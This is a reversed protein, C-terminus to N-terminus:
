PDMRGSPRELHFRWATGVERDAVEGDHWSAARRSCACRRGPSPSPGRRSAACTPRLRVGRAPAGARRRHGTRPGRWAPAIAYGLEVEGERPPGKFGGFGVVTRPDELVFLRTGWRASGPDRALEERARPLAAPFVDWGEAVECGLARGLAGPGHIAADLLAVDPTM